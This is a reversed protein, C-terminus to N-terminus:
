RLSPEDQALREFGRKRHNQENIFSVAAIRADILYDLLAVIKQEPQCGIKM